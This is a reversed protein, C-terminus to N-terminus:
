DSSGFVFIGVNSGVCGVCGPQVRLLDAGLLLVLLLHGGQTCQHGLRLRGSDCRHLLLGFGRLEVFALYSLEKNQISIYVNLQTSAANRIMKTHRLDLTDNQQTSTLIVVVMLVMAIVIVRVGVVIM